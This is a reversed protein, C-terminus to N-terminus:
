LICLLTVINYLCLHQEVAHLKHARQELFRGTFIFVILFTVLKDHIDHSKNSIEPLM